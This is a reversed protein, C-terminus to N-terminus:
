AARIELLLINTENAENLTFLLVWNKKLQDITIDESQNATLYEKLADWAEKENNSRALFVREGESSKLDLRPSTKLKEVLRDRYMGRRIKNPQAYIKGSGLFVFVRM